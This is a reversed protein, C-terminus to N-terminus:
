MQSFLHKYAASSRLTEPRSRLSLTYRSRVDRRASKIERVAVITGRHIRWFKEPDLQTELEVLPARLVHEAHATFVSTYKHDSRLYVVDDAAILEVEEGHGVRLWRLWTEQSASSDIRSLLRQLDIARASDNKKLRQQLREVTRRLRQPEVPKLLYDIAAEDFASIAFEDFATVFVVNVSSALQRAVDIGSPGPMKIDLFVVDPVQAGIKALAERGNQATDIIRLEPWCQQLLRALHEILAAEDDVIIATPSNREM